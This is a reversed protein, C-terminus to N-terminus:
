KLAAEADQADRIKKKWARAQANDPNNALVENVLGMADNYRGSEWLSRVPGNLTRRAAAEPDADNPKSEGPKSEGPKSEGPKPAATEPATPAPSGAPTPLAPNATPHAIVAGVAAKKSQSARLKQRSVFSGAIILALILGVLVAATRRTIQISKPPAMTRLSQQPPQRRVPPAAPAPPQYAPPVPPPAAAPEPHAVPQPPQAHQSPPAPSQPLAFATDRMLPTGASYSRATWPQPPGAQDQPRERVPPDPVAVPIEPVPAAAPPPDVPVPAAAVPEPAVPPPEAIATEFMPLVVPPPQAPAAASASASARRRLEQAAVYLGAAFEEATQLRQAPDKHLARQVLQELEEPIQPDIKRLPEPESHVIERPILGPAASFPYKGAASEYLMLGLAFIDSRSDFPQGLVQEPALYNVMLSEPRSGAELLTALWKASGFDLITIDRAGDVFVNSPKLNGHAIERSHAFALGEAVQAVLALKQGLAWDKSEEMFRQLDMGTRLESVIFLGEDVEGLDHVKVVHRHVLEACCSLYTCFKEKAEPTVGPVTQLLKLAFERNRFSDRVKYSTGTASAGLQEIVQYKGISKM